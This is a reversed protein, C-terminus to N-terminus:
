RDDGDRRALAMSRMTDMQSRNLFTVVLSCMRNDIAAHYNLIGNGIGLAASTDTSFARMQHNAASLVGPSELNSEGYVLDAGGGLIGMLLFLSTAFYVNNGRESKKVIADTLEVIRLDREGAMRVTGAEAVAVCVIEGGRSAIAISNSANGLLNAVEREGYGFSGLLSVMDKRETDNITAGSASRISYINGAGSTYSYMGERTRLARDIDGILAASGPGPRSDGRAISINSRYRAVDSDTAGCSPRNHGFYVIAIKGGGGSDLPVVAEAMERFRGLLDPRGDLVSLDVVARVSMRYAQGGGDVVGAYHDLTRFLYDLDAETRVTRDLFGKIRDGVAYIGDTPGISSTGTYTGRQEQRGAGHTEARERM